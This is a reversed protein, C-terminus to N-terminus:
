TFESAFLIDSDSIYLNPYLTCFDSAALTAKLWTDAPADYIYVRIEKYSYFISPAILYGGIYSMPMQNDPHKSIPHWESDSVHKRYMTDMTDLYQVGDAIVLYSNRPNRIAPTPQVTWISSDMHYTLVELFEASDTMSLYVIRTGDSSPNFLLSSTPPPPLPEWKVPSIV